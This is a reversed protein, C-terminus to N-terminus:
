TNTREQLPQNGVQGPYKLFYFLQHCHQFHQIDQSGDQLNNHLSQLHPAQAEQTPHEKVTPIYQLNTFNPEDLKQQM